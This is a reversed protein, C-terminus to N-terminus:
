AVTVTLTESSPISSIIVISIRPDRTYPSSDKSVAKVSCYSNSSQCHLLQFFFCSIIEFLVFFNNCEPIVPAIISASAKPFGLSYQAYRCYIEQSRNLLMFSQYPTKQTYTSFFPPSATFTLDDTFGIQSFHLTILLFPLMLIIQSFGFCM